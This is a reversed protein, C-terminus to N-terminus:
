RTWFAPVKKEVPPRGAGPKRVGRARDVQRIEDRGCRITTRSIGTIRHVAEIGGRGLQGALLGVFRRRSKEDLTVIVRNIARHEAAIQSYPHARCHACQCRHIRRIRRARRKTDAM